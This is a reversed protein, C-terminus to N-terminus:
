SMLPAAVRGTQGRRMEPIPGVLRRGLEPSLGLMATAVLSTWVATAPSVRGRTEAFRVGREILTVALAMLTLAAWVSVESASVSLPLTFSLREESGTTLALPLVVWGVVAWAGVVRWRFWWCLAGGLLVSPASLVIWREAPGVGCRVRGIGYRLVPEPVGGRGGGLVDSIWLSRLRRMAWSLVLAVTSVIGFLAEIGLLATLWTFALALLGLLVLTGEM